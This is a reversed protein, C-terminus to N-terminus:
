IIIAIRNLEHFIGLFIPILSQLLKTNKYTKKANWCKSNNSRLGDVDSLSIYIYQLVHYEFTFAFLKFSPDYTKKLGICTRHM